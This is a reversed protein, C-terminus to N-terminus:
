KSMQNIEKTLANRAGIKKKIADLVFVTSLQVKYRTCKVVRWNEKEKMVPLM